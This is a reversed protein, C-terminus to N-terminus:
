WWPPASSVLDVISEGHRFTQRKEGESTPVAEATCPNEGGRRYPHFRTWLVKAEPTM